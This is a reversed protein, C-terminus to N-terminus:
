TFIVENLSFYYHLHHAAASFHPFIYAFLQFQSTVVKHRSQVPIKKLFLTTM